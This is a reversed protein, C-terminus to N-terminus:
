ARLDEKIPTMKGNCMFTCTDRLVAIHSLSWLQPSKTLVWLWKIMVNQKGTGKAM